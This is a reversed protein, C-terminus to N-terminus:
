FVFPISTGEHWLSFADVKRSDVPLSFVRVGRFELLAVTNAIPREGLGWEARLAHAAAEPEFSRLSPVSPPPLEFRQEIWESLMKALTGAALAADRQWASLGSLSRFSAADCAIEEIDEGYFFEIPFELRRALAAQHDQSPRIGSSKSEYYCLSRVSIGTQSSLAAKSLGRRKRALALRSPNFEMEIDPRTKRAAACPFTSTEKAPIMPLIM